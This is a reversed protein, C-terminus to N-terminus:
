KPTPVPIQSKSNPIQPNVEGMHRVVAEREADWRREEGPLRRGTRDFADAIRSM